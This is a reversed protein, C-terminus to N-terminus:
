QAGRVRGEAFLPEAAVSQFARHQSPRADSALGAAWLSERGAHATRTPLWGTDVPAARGGRQGPEAAPRAQWGGGLGAGLLLPAVCMELDMDLRTRDWLQGLLM